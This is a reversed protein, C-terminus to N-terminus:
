YLLKMYYRNKLTGNQGGVFFSTMPYSLLLQSFLSSTLVIAWPGPIPTQGLAIATPIPILRLLSILISWTHPYFLPPLLHLNQPEEGPQNVCSTNHLCIITLDCLSCPAYHDTIEESDYLGLNDHHILGAGWVNVMQQMLKVWRHGLELAAEPSRKSKSLSSEVSFKSSSEWSKWGKTETQSRSVCISIQAKKELVRKWIWSALYSNWRWKELQDM